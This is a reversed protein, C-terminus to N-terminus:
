IRESSVEPLFSEYCVTCVRPKRMNKTPTADDNRKRQTFLQFRMTRHWQHRWCHMLLHTCRHCQHMHLRHM